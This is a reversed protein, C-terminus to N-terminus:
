RSLLNLLKKHKRVSLASPGPRSVEMVPARVPEQYQTGELAGSLVSLHSSSRRILSGSESNVSGQVALNETSTEKCSRAAVLFKIEDSPPLAGWEGADTDM